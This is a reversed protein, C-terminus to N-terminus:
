LCEDRGRRARDRCLNLVVTDRWVLPESEIEGRVAYRWDVATTRRLPETWAHGTRAANGGATPWCGPPAVAGDEVSQAFALPTLVAGAVIRASSLLRSTM